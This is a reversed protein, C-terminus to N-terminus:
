RLSSMKRTLPPRPHLARKRPAIRLRPGIPPKVILQTLGRSLPPEAASITVAGVTTECEPFASLPSARRNELVWRAFRAEVEAEIWEEMVERLEKRLNAIQNLRALEYSELSITSAGALYEVSSKCLQVLTEGPESVAM